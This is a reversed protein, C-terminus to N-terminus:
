KLMYCDFLRKLCIHNNKIIMKIVKRLLELLYVLIIIEM